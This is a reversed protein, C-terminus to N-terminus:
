KFCTRSFQLFTLWASALFISISADVESTSFSFFYMCPTYSQDRVPFVRLAKTQDYIIGGAKPGAAKQKTKKWLNNLITKNCGANM